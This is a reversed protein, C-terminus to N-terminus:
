AGIAFALQCNTMRALQQLRGEIREGLLDAYAKPVVLELSKEGKRNWHLQPLLGPMSASMLYVVRLIAGLLRAREALRPTALERIRPSAEDSVLGEHRYYNALAVFARGPHDIGVFSGHAIINLSQTGRYDPHARWGIDALLCAAIRYRSEDETEDIGFAAMAIATWDALERAHGPSRSRLVALEEAAAILPDTSQQAAPLQAYLYGERVGLASIVVRAPHMNRIVERLTAAGYPLLARRAKSVHEIGHIKAIDNRIVRELFYDVEPVPMEYHHMVDLPYDRYNMHLRALNRWTGGVAYFTRGHGAELMTSKRIAKRAILVADSVSDHATEQLRIGGLPLTIGEGIERGRIDVLELSGGGLDGAIGDPDHFGCIIGLASYHAEQAGTLVEVRAGLIGEVHAIFDKGNSAERAAATALAHITQAGAQESLARFRRMCALSKEVAVADLKGTSAVGRGLGVLAKENFLVTPARAIGEYIVLRVSNSGIDVVSLPNRGKLRGQANSLM